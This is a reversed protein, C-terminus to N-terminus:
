GNRETSLRGYHWALVRRELLVFLLNLITGTVGLAIMGSWMDPIEFQQQANIIFYGIGQTAGLMESVVMLIVGSQLATRLGAAIQPAASPLMVVWLMQARSLQYVTATERLQRDTGLLGDLTNFLIPWITGLVIVSISMGTGLGFIAMLGPALAPAPLARAFDIVPEALARLWPVLWLLAGLGIGIASAAALGILLHAVSPWMQTRLGEFLWTATFNSWIDALPPFFLQTSNASAVWWLTVLAVPLWLLLAAARLRRGLSSQRPLFSSMTMAM